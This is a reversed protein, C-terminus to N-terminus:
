SWGADKGFFLELTGGKRYDPSSAETFWEGIGTTSAICRYVEEPTSHIRVLHAIQAM